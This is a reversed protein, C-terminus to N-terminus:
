SALAEMRHAWRAADVTDAHHAAAILARGTEHDTETNAAARLQAALHPLQDTWTDTLDIVGAGLAGLDINTGHAATYIALAVRPRATTPTDLTHTDM